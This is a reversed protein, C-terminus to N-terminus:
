APSHLFFWIVFNNNQRLPVASRLYIWLHCWGCHWLRSWALFRQSRECWKGFLAGACRRHLWDADGVFASVKPGPKVHKPAPRFGNNCFHCYFLALYLETRCETCRGPLASLECQLFALVVWLWPEFHNWSQDIFRASRHAGLIRQHNACWDSLHFLHM